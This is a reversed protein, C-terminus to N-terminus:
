VKDAGALLEADSLAAIEARIRAEVEEGLQAITPREFVVRVPLTVEFEARLRSILRVALISHGGLAFFSQHVGARVGLLEEWIDAIREEAVTRPAVTEDPTSAQDPDPLARRDVKGNANLPIRDVAIVTAPVMYEPLSRECHERVETTGVVYAVIRQEHAIVAADRVEPHDLLVARIEGLEM